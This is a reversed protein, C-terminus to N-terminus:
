LAAWMNHGDNLVELLWLPITTLRDVFLGDFIANMIRNSM